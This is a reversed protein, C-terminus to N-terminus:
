QVLPVSAVTAELNDLPAINIVTPDVSYVYDDMFISRKVISNSDTWWNYCASYEAYDSEPARHAIRGLAEFGGDVTM